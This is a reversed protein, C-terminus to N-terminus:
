EERHALINDLEHRGIISRLSDHGGAPQRLPLQGRRHRGTGSRCRSTSWQTWRCPSTTPPSSRRRPIDVVEVRLNVKVLKDVLPWEVIIGPGKAEERIRGLRFFVAARVRHGGQPAHAMAIALAVFVVAGATIGFVIGATSALVPGHVM